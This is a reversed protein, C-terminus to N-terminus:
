ASNMGSQRNEVADSLCSAKWLNAAQLLEIANERAMRSYDKGALMAALEEIRSNENLSEMRSVAHDESIEKRVCFHADGYVAIQPLHTVCIVQHNRALSWLKKGIVDGSRGGIGIDIEDFVLVPIFDARSLASKLALTFRSIEGTSAIRILPKLTEGPNTAAVFEVQDIGQATVALRRGQINLLGNESEEQNISIAFQVQAMGLDSLEQKVRENLEKAAANRRSSLEQALKEIEILLETRERELIQKRETSLGLNALETEAKKLYELIAPITKGYKRKLNYIIELRSEISELYEPNIELRENYARIERVMEELSCITKDLFDFQPNLSSDLDILKKMAQFADKLLTLAPYPYRHTNGDNLAELIITSYEKLKESFAALHRAKELEEDEGPHLRAKKIEDIQYRLFEEQRSIEQEKVLISNLESEIERLRNIKITFENRLDTTHAFSDLFILHSKKDLLSLHESQGHIDMLLSTLQRLMSRTVTSGNVRITPTKRQRLLCSIVLTNEEPSLGDELLTRFTSRNVYDPLIFTGEIRAEGAGQRIMDDSANGTLLLELADIILSKGAGTEGTIVNLGEELKWDIDEIIGLDKVRLEALL